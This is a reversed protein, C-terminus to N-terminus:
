EGINRKIIELAHTYSSVKAEKIQKVNAINDARSEYKYMKIESEIEKIVQDGAELSKIAKNLSEINNEYTTVRAKEQINESELACNLKHINVNKIGRLTRIIEQKTM